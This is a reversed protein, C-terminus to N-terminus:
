RLHSLEISGIRVKQFEGGEIWLGVDSALHQINLMNDEM